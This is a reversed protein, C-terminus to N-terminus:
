AIRFQLPYKFFIFVYTFSFSGLFEHRLDAGAELSHYAPWDPTTAQCLICGAAVGRGPPMGYTYIGRCQPAVQRLPGCAQLSALNDSRSIDDGTREASM